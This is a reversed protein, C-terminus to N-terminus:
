EEALQYIEEFNIKGYEALCVNKEWLGAKLIAFFAEITNDKKM